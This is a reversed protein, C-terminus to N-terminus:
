SKRCTEEDTKVWKKDKDLVTGTHTFTDGDKTFTDRYKSEQDGALTEDFTMTSGNLGSSVGTSYPAGSRTNDLVVTAFRKGAADYRIYQVVSYPQPNAATRDEDYRITIWQGGLVREVRARGTTAHGPHKASAMLNGSCATYDGTPFLPDLQSLADANEATAHPIMIPASACALAGLLVSMSRKM